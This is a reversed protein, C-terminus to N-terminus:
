AFEDGGLRAVIDSDRFTEKLIGGARKLARDGESHGLSDNIQKLGDMDLFFLLMGRGSRRCVKFQREAFVYFGRHNHLGTLEDKLALNRLETQLVYQKAACRVARMLLEGSQWSDARWHREGQVRRVDRLLKSFEQNASALLTRFVGDTQKEGGRHWQMLGLDLQDPANVMRLARVGSPTSPGSQGEFGRLIRRRTQM